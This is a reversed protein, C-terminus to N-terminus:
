GTHSAPGYHRIVARRIADRNARVVEVEKVLVFRLKDILEFDLPDELAVTVVDQTSALPIVNEGRALEGPVSALAAPPIDLACPDILPFEMTDPPPEQLPVPILRNIPRAGSPDSPEYDPM